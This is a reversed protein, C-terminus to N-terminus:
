KDTFAYWGHIDKETQTVENMIINELEMWKGSFKMIGNNKVASDYEMIYIYWMKRIWEKTLHCRPQKQSNHLFSNHVYNRLHGQLQISCGKPAYGPTTKFYSSKWNESSRGYQNGFYSYVNTSGGDISSHPGQEVDKGAHVTVTNKVKAM